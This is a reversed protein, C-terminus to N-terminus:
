PKARNFAEVMRAADAPYIYEYMGSQNYDWVCKILCPYSDPLLANVVASALHYVKYDDYNHLLVYGGVLELTFTGEYNRITMFTRDGGPEAVDAGFHYRANGAIILGTEDERIINKAAEIQLNM